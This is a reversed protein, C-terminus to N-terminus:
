PSWGCRILAEAEADLEHDRLRARPDAHLAFTWAAYALKASASQRSIRLRACVLLLNFIPTSAAVACILAAEERVSM